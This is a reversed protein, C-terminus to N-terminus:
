FNRLGPGAGKSNLLDKKRAEAVEKRDAADFDYIVTIPFAASGACLAGVGVYALTVSAKDLGSIAVGAAGAVNGLGSLVGGGFGTTFGLAAYKLTHLFEKPGGCAISGILAIALAGGVIGWGIPSILMGAVTLGTFTGLIIGSALSLTRGSVKKWDVQNSEEIRKPVDSPPPPLPSTKALSATTTSTTSDQVVAEISQISPTHQIPSTM